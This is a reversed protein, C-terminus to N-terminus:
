ARRWGVSGDLASVAAIVRLGSVPDLEAGNLRRPLWLRFLGAPHLADLLNPSLERNADLSQREAEVLPALIRVCELLHEAPAPPAPSV